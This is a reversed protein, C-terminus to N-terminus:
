KALHRMVGAMLLGAAFVMFYWFYKHFNAKIWAKIKDKM